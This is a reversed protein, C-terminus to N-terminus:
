VELGLLKRICYAILIPGVVVFYIIFPISCLELIEKIPM